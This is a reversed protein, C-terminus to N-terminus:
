VQHEARVRTTRRLSAQLRLIASSHIQSVRSETIGLVKGIELMTLEEHYYLSVVQRERPPLKDILKGLLARREAGELAQVPDPTDPDELADMVSAGHESDADADLSILTVGESLWERYADPDLGMEGAIEEDTPSRGLRQTLIGIARAAERALRRVRRPVCDLRRLEDLIAGRIRRSAYAGFEVNREPDYDDIAALFGVLGASYLDDLRFHSPLRGAVRAAAYKVLVLHKEVLTDRVAPDRTRRYGRWVELDQIM